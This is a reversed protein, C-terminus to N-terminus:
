RSQFRLITPVALQKLVDKETDSFNCDYLVIGDFNKAKALAELDSFFAHNNNSYKVNGFIIL